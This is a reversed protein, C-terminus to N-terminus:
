NLGLHGFLPCAASMAAAISGGSFDLWSPLCAAPSLFLIFQDWLGWIGERPPGLFFLSYLTAPEFCAQMAVINKHCNLKYNDATRSCSLSEASFAGDLEDEMATGQWEVGLLAQRHWQVEAGGPCHVTFHLGGCQCHCQCHGIHGAAVCPCHDRFISAQLM